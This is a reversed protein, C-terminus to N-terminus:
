KDMVYLTEGDLAKDAYITASKNTHTNKLKIQVNSDNEDSLVDEIRYGVYRRFDEGCYMPEKDHVEESDEPDTVAMGERQKMATMYGWYFADEQVGSAYEEIADQVGSYGDKTRQSAMPQNERENEMIELIKEYKKLVARDM